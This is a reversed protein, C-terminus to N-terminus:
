KTLGGKYRNGSLKLRTVESFLTNEGLRFPNEEKPQYGAGLQEFAVAFLEIIPTTGDWKKRLTSVRLALSDMNRGHGNTALFVQVPFMGDNVDFKDALGHRTLMAKLVRRFETYLSEPFLALSPAEIVTNFRSNLECNSSFPKRLNETGSLVMVIAHRKEAGTASVWSQPNRPDHMNWTNKAFDQHQKRLDSAGVLLGNHFEELMFLSTQQARLADHFVSEISSERHRALLPRGLQLLASEIVSRVNPKSGLSVRVCPCVQQMGDLRRPYRSSVLDFAYTKGAGSDGILLIGKSVGTQLVEAEAMSVQDLLTQQFPRRYDTM